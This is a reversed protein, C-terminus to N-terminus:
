RGVATMYSAPDVLSTAARESLEYLPGAGVAIGIGLVVAIATVGVMVPPLRHTRAREEATPDEPDGWFAGSWIKMMSFVTLISVLLGVGVTLYAGVELGAQIVALKALFGSFPPVGAFSLATIMFLVALVPTTRIMGGLHRLAGTGSAFEILGGIMFLTTTILIHHIASFVTASLGALTLLGLGFILYGIQSVIHFSLVRMVDDQAIAGLVGVLMTLAAVTLLFQSGESGAFLLSQSRIIAYVGIKTLLGAFIATVPAPAIPYSDPLWFFLPFIAAKIGFVVLFLSGLATRLGPDIAGLKDALDALNVTGTAAYAIAIASIFLSSALLSIVVYTIGHRVQERSRGIAILVYSATLTVEFAVFLNFLDATLFCAAVGAAMVMYVPYFFRGQDIPRTSGITFVLVIILVVLSVTLLLGALLDLALVIGLPSGWDGIETAIVSGDDIKLVLAITVGLVVLLTLLGLARQVRPRRGLGLSLAASALSLVIPLPLLLDNTM